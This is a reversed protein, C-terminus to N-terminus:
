KKLFYYNILSLNFLNYFNNNNKLKVLVETFTRYKIYKNTHRRNFFQTPWILELLSGFIIIKIFNYLLFIIILEESFVLKFNLFFNFNNIINSFM